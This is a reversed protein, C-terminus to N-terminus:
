LISSATGQSSGMGVMMPLKPNAVHNRLNFTEQLYLRDGILQFNPLEIGGSQRLASLGDNVGADLKSVDHLTSVLLGRGAPPTSGPVTLYCHCRQVVWRNCSSM